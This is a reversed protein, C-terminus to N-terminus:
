TESTVIKKDELFDANTLSPHITIYIILIIQQSNAFTNCAHAKTVHMCFGELFTYINSHIGIPIQIKYLDNGLNLCKFPLKSIIYIHKRKDSMHGTLIKQFLLM